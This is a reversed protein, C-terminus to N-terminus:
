KVWLHLVEYSVIHWNKYFFFHKRYSQRLIIDAARSSKLEAKM